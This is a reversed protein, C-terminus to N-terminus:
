AFGVLLGLVPGAIAILPVDLRPPCGNSSDTASPSSDSSATPSTTSSSPSTRALGPWTNKVLQDYSVGDFANQTICGKQRKDYNPCAKLCATMTPDGFPLSHADLKQACQRACDYAACPVRENWDWM